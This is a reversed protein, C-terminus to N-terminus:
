RHSRSTIQQLATLNPIKPTQPWPKPTRGNPRVRKEFFAGIGEEADRALMNDVMIQSAYDYAEALPMERQAYFARKGTALTM